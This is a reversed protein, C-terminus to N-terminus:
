NLKGDHPYKELNNSAYFRDAKLTKGCKECYYTSKKDAAMRKKKRREKRKKLKQMEANKVSVIIGM